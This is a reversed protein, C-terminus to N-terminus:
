SFLFIKIETQPATASHLWSKTSLSLYISFHSPSPILLPLYSFPPHHSSPTHTKKKKQNGRHTQSECVLPQFCDDLLLKGYRNSKHNIWSQRQIREPGTHRELRQPHLLAIKCVWPTFYMSAIDSDPSLSSQLKLSEHAISCTPALHLWTPLVKRLELLHMNLELYYLM